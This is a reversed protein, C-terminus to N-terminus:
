AGGAKDPQHVTPLAKPADLSAFVEDVSRKMVQMDAVSASPREIGNTNLRQLLDGYWELGLLQMAVARPLVGHAYAGLIAKEAVQANLLMAAPRRNRKILVSIGEDTEVADLLEGLQKKLDTATVVKM